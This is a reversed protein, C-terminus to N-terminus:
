AKEKARRISRWREMFQEPKENSARRIMAREAPSLKGLPRTFMEDSMRQLPDRTPRMHARTGADTM